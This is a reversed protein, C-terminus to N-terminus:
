QKITKNRFNLSEEAMSKDKAIQMKTEMESIKDQMYQNNEQSLQNSLLANETNLQTKEREIEFLKQQSIITQGVVVM